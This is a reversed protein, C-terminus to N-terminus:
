VDDGHVLDAFVFSSFQDGGFEDIAHGQPPPHTAPSQRERRRNIDRQLDGASKPRRMVGSYDV